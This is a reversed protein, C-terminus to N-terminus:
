NILYFPNPLKFTKKAFGGTLDSDQDGINALITYGQQTLKKRIATKYLAASQNLMSAPKLYLAKWNKYGAHQLNRITALREHQPRGTVFFITIRHAVAFQYLKLIPKIVPDQGMAEKRQIDKVSGGFNLEKMAPYNSLATEDIDLIIAPRKSAKLNNQLYTLARTTVQNIDREYEGSSYYEILQKKHLALNVPEQAYVHSFVVITTFLVYFISVFKNKTPLM